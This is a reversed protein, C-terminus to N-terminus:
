FPKQSFKRTLDRGIPVCSLTNIKNGQLALVHLASLHSFARCGISSIRNSALSLSVLNKNSALMKLDTDGISSINNRDLNLLTLAPVDTLSLYQLNQISNNNLFLRQINSLNQIKLQVVVFFM